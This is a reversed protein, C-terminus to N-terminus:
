LGIIHIIGTIGMLVIPYEYGGLYTDRTDCMYDPLASSQHNDRHPRKPIEKQKKGLPYPPLLDPFNHIFEINICTSVVHYLMM